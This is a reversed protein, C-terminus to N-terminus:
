AGLLKLIKEGVVKVRADDMKGMALNIWTRASASRVQGAYDGQGPISALNGLAILARYVVETDTLDLIPVALLKILSSSSDGISNHGKAEQERLTFVALNSAASTWAVMLNRNKRGAVDLVHALFDVIKLATKAILQQGGSTAFLNTIVRLAMMANNEVSKPDAALETGNEKPYDLISPLLTDLVSNGQSDAYEALSASPATCRLVDLGPLRDKYPWATAVKLVVSISSPEVTFSRTTVAPVMAPITVPVLPVDKALAQVLSALQATQESNLSLKHGSSEQQLLNNNVVNIRNLAPTFNVQTLTVFVAHPGLPHSGSDSSGAVTDPGPASTSSGLDISPTEAEQASSDVVSGVLLWQNQGMSWQYVSINGGGSNIMVTQGEKTGAKTEIFEPGPLTSPNIDGM